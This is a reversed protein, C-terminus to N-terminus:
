MKRNLNVLAKYFQQQFVPPKKWNRNNLLLFSIFYIGIAICVVSKAKLTKVLLSIVLSLIMCLFVSPFYLLRDGESTRTSIGFLTPIAMAIILVLVLRIYTDLKLFGYMKYLQVNLLIIIVMILVFLGILLNSNESPPLLLRGWTKFAKIFLNLFQNDTIRSGYEGYVVDSAYYRVALYLVIIAFCVIISILTKKFSYEKNWILLLIIIPLLLISEYALLGICYFLGTFFAKLFIKMNSLCVLISLLAFFCSITSLRGTLWVVGENHFPYVLFLLASLWSFWQQTKHERPKLTLAIKYILYANIIHVALNFIYYGGCNLQSFFYNFKFSIDILPRLFEKVIITKEICIRYLSDYDDSLFENDLIPFYLILGVLSFVGLAIGAKKGPKM